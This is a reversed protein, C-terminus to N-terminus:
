LIGGMRGGSLIDLGAAVGGVAAVSKYKRALYWWFWAGLPLIIGIVLIIIGMIHTNDSEVSANSPDKPDYYVTLNDGEKYQIVSNTTTNLHYTKNDVKYNVTLTCDYSDQHAVCLVSEATGNTTSVLKTKHVIFYIGTPIMVLAAIVAMVLAFIAMIRGFTATGSYLTTSEKRKAM